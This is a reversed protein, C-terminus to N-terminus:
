VVTINGVSSIVIIENTGIGLLEICDHDDTSELYGTTVTTQQNGFYFIQSGSPELRWGGTGRGVIRSYDGFNTGGMTFVVPTGARAAVYANSAFVEQTADTIYNWVVGGGIVTLGLTGAGTGVQIGAGAITGISPSNGTNGIIMQGNTMTALEVFGGSSVQFNDSNFNCLGVKTSDEAAIAQSSQVDITIAHSGTGNSRIPNTGAAVLAGHLTVVGAANPTVPNTGSQVSFSDVAEGGGTLAITIAGPSNTIDIGSGATLTAPSPNAGTNGILIQGDAMEDTATFPNNGQALVIGHETLGSDTGLVQFSTLNGTGRGTLVLGQNATGVHAM